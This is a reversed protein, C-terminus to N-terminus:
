RLKNYTTKNMTTLHPPDSTWLTNMLTSFFKPILISRIYILMVLTIAFTSSPPIYPNKPPSLGFIHSIKLFEPKYRRILGVFLAVTQILNKKLGNSFFIIKFRKCVKSLNEFPKLWVKKLGNLFMRKKFRESVRQYFRNMYPKKCTKCFGKLFRFIRASWSFLKSFTNM